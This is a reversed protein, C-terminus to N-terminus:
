EEAAIQAGVEGVGDGDVRIQTSQHHTAVGVPVEPKESTALSARASGALLALAFLWRHQELTSVFRRHM